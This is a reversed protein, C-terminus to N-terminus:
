GASFGIDRFYGFYESERGDKSLEIFWDFVTANVLASDHILEIVFGVANLSNEGVNVEIIKELDVFWDNRSENAHEQSTEKSVDHFMIRMKVIANVINNISDHTWKCPSSSSSSPAERALVGDGVVYRLKRRGSWINAVVEDDEEDMILCWLGGHCGSSSGNGFSRWMVMLWHNSSSVLMEEELLEEMVERQDDWEKSGEQLKHLNMSTNCEYGYERRQISLHVGICTKKCLVCAKVVEWELCEVVILRELSFM